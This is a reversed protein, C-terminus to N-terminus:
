HDVRSGYFQHPRLSHFDDSGRFENLLEFGTEAVLLKGRVGFGPPPHVLYTGFREPEDPRFERVADVFRGHAVENALFEAFGPHGGIVPRDDAYVAMGAIRM